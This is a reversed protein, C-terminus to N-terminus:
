LNTISRKDRKLPAPKKAAQSKFAARKAISKEKKQITFCNVPHERMFFKKGRKTLTIFKSDVLDVLEGHKAYAWLCKLHKCPEKSSGKGCNCAWYTGNGGQKIQRGLRFIAYRKKPNTLSRFTGIRM